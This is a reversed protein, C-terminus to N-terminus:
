RIAQKNNNVLEVITENDKTNDIKNLNEKHIELLLKSCSIAKDVKSKVNNLRNKSDAAMSNNKSDLFENSELSYQSDSIM